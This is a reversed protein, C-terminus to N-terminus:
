DLAVYMNIDTRYLSKFIADARISSRSNSTAFWHVTHFKVYNDPLATPSRLAEATVTLKISITKKKLEAYHRSRSGVEKRLQFSFVRM